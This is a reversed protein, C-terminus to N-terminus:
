ARFGIIAPSKRSSLNRAAANSSLSELIFEGTVDEEDMYETLEKVAVFDGPGISGLACIRELERKDFDVDPFYRRFLLKMGEYTPFKFEVIKHFRRVISPEASETHNSTAIVLGNYEELNVMFSTTIDNHAKDGGSYVDTKRSIYGDVEDLLLLTRKSEAEKFAQYIQEESQGVWKSVLDHYRKVTVEVGLKEAIHYAYASKGTGSEGSLMLKWPSNQRFAKEAMRDLIEIPIDSNIVRIDYQDSNVQRRKRADESIDAKQADGFFKSLAEWDRKDAIEKILTRSYCLTAANVKSTMLIRLFEPDDSFYEAAKKRLQEGSVHSPKLNVIPVYEIAPVGDGNNSFLEEDETLNIEGSGTTRLTGFRFGFIQAMNIFGDMKAPNSESFLVIGGLHMAQIAQMAYVGADTSDMESGILCYIGEEELLRKIIGLSMHQLFDDIMIAIPSKSSIAHKILSIVRPDIEYFGAVDSCDPIDVKELLENSFAVNEWLYAVWPTSLSNLRTRGSAIIDFMREVSKMDAETLIIGFQESLVERTKKKTAIVNHNCMAEIIVITLAEVRNIPFSSILSDALRESSEIFDPEELWSLATTIISTDKNKM